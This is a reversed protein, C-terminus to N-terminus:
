GGTMVRSILQATNRAGYATRMADLHWQVTRLSIGLKVAIARNTMGERSILEFIERQQGTMKHLQYGSRLARSAADAINKFLRSMLSRVQGDTEAETGVISIIIRHDPRDAIYSLGQTMGHQACAALFRRLRVGPSKDRALEESWVIPRGPEAQAVPDIQQFNKALYMGTWSESWDVNIVRSVRYPDFGILALLLPPHGPLSSQLALLFARLDHEDKVQILVGQLVVLQYATLAPLDQLLRYTEQKM